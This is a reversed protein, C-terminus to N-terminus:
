QFMNSDLLEARSDVAQMRSDRPLTIGHIHYVLQVFGSCDIGFPTVGGWLYPTGIFRKATAVIAQGTPPIIIPSVTKDLLRVDTRAVYGLREDPLVVLIWDDDVEAVELETTIVVKTLLDSSAEPQSFVGAFLSEVVAVTYGAAYPPQSQRPMIWRSRAWGHYDDWTRIYVWDTQEKEIWVPWGMITQSVMESDLDPESYLNLVNNTVVALRCADDFASNQAPNDM